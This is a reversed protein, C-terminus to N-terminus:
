SIDTRRFYKEIERCLESYMRPPIRKHDFTVDPERYKRLSIEVKTLTPRQDSHLSLNIDTGIGIRLCQKNSYMPICRDINLIFGEFKEPVWSGMKRKWFNEALIEPKHLYRNFDRADDQFTTRDLQNLLPKIKNNILYEQWIVLEERNLEVPHVPDISIQGPNPLRIETGEKDILKGEFNITFTQQIRGETYTGWVITRGIQRGCVDDIFLSEWEPYNFDNFLMLWNDVTERYFGTLLKETSKRVATSLEPDTLEKRPKIRNNKVLISEASFIKRISATESLPEVGPNTQLRTAILLLNAYASEERALELTKLFSERIGRRHKQAYIKGKFLTLLANNGGLIGFVALAKKIFKTALEKGKAATVLEAALGTTFADLSQQTFVTALNQLRKIEVSSLEESFSFFFNLAFLNVNEAVEENNDEWALKPIAELDILIKTIPEKGCKSFSKFKEARKEIDYRSYM